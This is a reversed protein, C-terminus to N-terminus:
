NQQFSGLSTNFAASVKAASGVASIFLHNPSVSIQGLGSKKLYTTVLDVAANGPAYTRDFQAPTLFKHFSSSGRTNQAQVLSKLAAANQMQLALSIRMSTAPNLAGLSVANVLPIAKTATAIWSTAADASALPALCALSFMAGSLACARVNFSM